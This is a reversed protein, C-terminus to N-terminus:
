IVVTFATGAPGTECAINGGHVDVIRKTITLGLGTGGEKKTKFAVFLNDAIEKPMGPGNDRVTVVAREGDRRTTVAVSPAGVKAEHLAEVANKCLNFFAMRLQRPDLMRPKLGPDLDLPATFGEVGREAAFASASAATERLLANLDTEVFEPAYLSTFQLYTKALEAGERLSTDTISLDEKVSENSLIAGDLAALDERLCGIWSQGAILKNKLEHIVQYSTQRLTMVEMAFAVIPLMWLVQGFREEIAPYQKFTEVPFELRWGETDGSPLVPQDFLLQLAGAHTQNAGAHTRRHISPIPISLLYQTASHLIKDVGDFHRKDTPAFTYVVLGRRVTVGAISDFPVRVGILEAVNSFVFQLYPGEEALISGGRAGTSEICLNLVHKLMDEPSNGFSLRVLEQLRDQFVAESGQRSM